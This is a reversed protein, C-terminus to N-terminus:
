DTDYFGFKKKLKGKITTSKRIIERFYKIQDESLDDVFAEPRNSIIQEIEARDKMMLKSCDVFSDHDLFNYEKISIPIQLNALEKSFNININVNSNVYLTALSFGDITQGIIIFVKIKPPFTDHVKLRLVSGVKVNRRSFEDKLDGPFFEGLNAM